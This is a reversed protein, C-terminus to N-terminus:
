LTFGPRHSVSGTQPYQGPAKQVYYYWNIYQAIPNDAPCFFDSFLMETQLVKNSENVDVITDETFNISYWKVTLYGNMERNVVLKTALYWSSSVGTVLGTEGLNYSAFNLWNHFIWHLNMIKVVDENPQKLRESPNYRLQNGAISM